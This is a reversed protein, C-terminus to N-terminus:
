AITAYSFKGDTQLIAITSVMSPVVLVGPHTNALLDSVIEEPQAKLGLRQILKRAQEETATHCCLFVVGRRQLTQISRDQYFSHLDNPDNHGVQATAPFFPNKGAQGPALSGAIGAFEALRYKSWMANNFNLVTAPGHLGVAIQVQRVPVGYGFEFGNLSNKVNNLFVGDHIDTIDYLQRYRAPRTMLQKLQAAGHWQSKREVLDASASGPLSAAAALAALGRTFFQQRTMSM